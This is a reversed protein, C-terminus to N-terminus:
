DTTLFKAFRDHGILSPNYNRKFMGLRQKYFTYKLDLKFNILNKKLCM